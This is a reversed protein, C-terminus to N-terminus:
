GVPGCGGTCSCCWRVPHCGGLAGGRMGWRGGPAVGGTGAVVGTGPVTDTGGRGGDSPRLPGMSLPPGGGRGGTGPPVARPGGPAASAEPSARSSRHPGTGCVAASGSGGGCPVSAWPAWM